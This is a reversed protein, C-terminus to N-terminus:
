VSRGGGVTLMEVGGSVMTPWGSVSVQVTDVM